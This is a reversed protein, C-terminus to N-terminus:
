ATVLKLGLTTIFGFVLVPLKGLAM